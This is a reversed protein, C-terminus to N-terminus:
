HHTTLRKRVAFGVLLAVAVALLVYVAYLFMDALRLWFPTNEGGDYGPMDLPLGSGCLWAVGLLLALLGVGALPRLAERPSAAWRHLFQRAMSGLTVAVAVSLLVYMWALLVDTHLPENKTLDMVLREEPPTEGGLFFLALVLATVGLLLWLVAGSANQIRFKRGMRM